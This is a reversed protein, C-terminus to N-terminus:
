LCRAEGHWLLRRIASRSPPVVAMVDSTGTEYMGALEEMLADTKETPQGGSAALEADMAARVRLVRWRWRDRVAPALQADLRALIRDSEGTTDPNKCAYSMTYPRGPKIHHPAAYIGLDEQGGEPRFVAEIGEHEEMRRMACAVEGAAEPGFEYAAYERLIDEATRTPDWGYQLMLAKNADEFIGESYPFGGCVLERSSDWYEQWHRPRPNAGFGGWPHMGQMSIEPFNLAPFGGPIGHRLPYDPFRGYDDALIYDVWDPRKARFAAALGDWEGRTFLDFYWTSLVTKAGPLMERVLRAVAEATRLFGNAGWPACAGCTCGGQDYPWLWFYRIDLDRFAELMERRYRLILDLGGPKSPCIEVHYHGGPPATYGDHGCTWDARLGPPSDAYAENALTTLSAGMGVNNAAQVIARLRRVHDQAAPDNIGSYHHMDFWVSLANCGWLALDEVYRVVKDIPAAHYFNHFHTAFYMGRVPKVPVSAGRWGGPSFEGPSYQSTRLFKGVGYLLGREDDGVIRVKGPAADEIRFGEAGIGPAVALVCDADAPGAMRVQVGSRERIDRSLLDIIKGVRPSQATGGAAGIKWAM